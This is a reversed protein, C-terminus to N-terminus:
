AEATALHEAHLKSYFICYSRLSCQIFVQNMHSTSEQPFELYNIDYTVRSVQRSPLAVRAITCGLCQGLTFAANLDHDFVVISAVCEVDLMAKDKSYARVFNYWILL